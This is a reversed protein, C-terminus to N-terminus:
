EEMEEENWLNVEILPKAVVNIIFIGTEAIVKSLFPSIYISWTTM